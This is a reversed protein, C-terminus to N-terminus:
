RGVDAPRHRAQQALVEGAVHVDIERRLHLLREVRDRAAAMPGETALLPKLFLTSDVLRIGEDELVRAVGGILSDTNKTTLSALVTKRLNAYITRGERVAHVLTPFSDDTRTYIVEAGLRHMRDVNPAQREIDVAGMYVRCPM